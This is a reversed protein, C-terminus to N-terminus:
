RWNPAAVSRTTRTTAIDCEPWLFTFPRTPTSGTARETHRRAKLLSLRNLIRHKSM